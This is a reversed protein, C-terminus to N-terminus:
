SLGAGHGGALTIEEYKVEAALAQFQLNFSTKRLNVVVIAKEQNFTGVLVKM